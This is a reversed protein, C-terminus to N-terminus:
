FAPNTIDMHNTLSGQSFSTGGVMESGVNDTGSLVSDIFGGDEFNSNFKMMMDTLDNKSLM